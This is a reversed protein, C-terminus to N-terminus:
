IQSQNKDTIMEVLLIKFIMKLITCTREFKRIAAVCRFVFKENGFSTIREPRDFKSYNKTM